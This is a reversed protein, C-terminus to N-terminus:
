RRLRPEAAIEDFIAAKSAIAEIVKRIRGQSFRSEYLVGNSDDIFRKYILVDENSSDDRFLYVRWGNDGVEMPTLDIGEASIDVEKDGDGYIPAYGVYFLEEKSRGNTQSQGGNDIRRLIDAWYKSEGDLTVAKASLTKSNLLFVGDICLAYLGEATTHMSWEPVVDLWIAFEHPNGIIM